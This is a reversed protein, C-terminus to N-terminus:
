VGTTETEKLRKKHLKGIAIPVITRKYRKMKLSFIFLIGESVEPGDYSFFIRWTFVQRFNGNM